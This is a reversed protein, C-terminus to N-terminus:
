FKYIWLLPFTMEPNNVLCYYPTDCYKRSANVARAFMLTRRQVESIGEEDEEDEDVSIEGAEIKKSTSMSEALQDLSDLMFAALAGNRDSKSLIDDSIKPGKVADIIVEDVSHPSFPPILYAHVGLKLLQFINDVSPDSSIAVAYVEPFEQELLELFKESSISQKTDMAVDFFIVDADHDDLYELAPQLESFNHIRDYGVHRMSERLLTLTDRNGSIVLIEIKHKGYDLDLESTQEM